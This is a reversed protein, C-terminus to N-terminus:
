YHFGEPAHMVYWSIWSLFIIAIYFLKKGINAQPITEPDILKGEGGM